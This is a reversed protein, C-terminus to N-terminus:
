HILNGLQISVKNFPDHHITQGHFSMLDIDRYKNFKKLADIHLETVFSNQKLKKM